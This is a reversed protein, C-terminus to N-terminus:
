QVTIDTGPLVVLFCSVLDCFKDGCRTGGAAHELIHKFKQAAVVVFRLGVELLLEEGLYLVESEVVVQVLCAEAVLALINRGQKGGALVLCNCGVQEFCCSQIVTRKGFAQQLEM